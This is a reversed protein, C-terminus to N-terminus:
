LVKEEDVSRTYFWRGDVRKFESTESLKQARGEWIYHATFTVYCCDEDTPHGFVKLVKLRQWKAKKAWQAAEAADFNEAAKGCMTAEIYGINAQSYAVYRSRMLAEATAPVQEGDIYRGCCESYGLKSGCPCCTLMKKSV